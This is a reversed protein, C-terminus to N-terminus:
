SGIFKICDGLLGEADYQDALMLTDFVTDTSLNENLYRICKVKLEKIEYKEAADLLEVAVDEFDEIKDSYIFRVFEFMVKGRIDAIKVEKTATEIMQTELMRMFVPSYAALMLRHVPIERDDCVIEFDSFCDSNFFAEMKTPPIRQHYDHLRDELFPRVDFFIVFKIAGDKIIRKTNDFLIKLKLEQDDETDISMYCGPQKVNFRQYESLIKMLGRNTQVNIELYVDCPGFGKSPLSLEFTSEDFNRSEIYLSLKTEFRHEWYNNIMMANSEVQFADNTRIVDETFDRVKWEIRNFSSNSKM